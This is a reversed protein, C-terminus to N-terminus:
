SEERWEREAEFFEDAKKLSKYGADDELWLQCMGKWFWAEPERDPRTKIIKDCLMVFMRMFLRYDKKEITPPHKKDGVLIKLVECGFEDALHNVTLVFTREHPAGQSIAKLLEEITEQYKTKNSM